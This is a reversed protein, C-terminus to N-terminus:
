GCTWGGDVVLSSGTMFGGGESALLVMPAMIDEVKAFRNFKIKGLVWARFDPDSLGHRTLETEIFTPCLTNVRIKYQALEIAIGKTMGELAFKSASYISRKPGSVQGMQSSVNIISGPKGAAILPRAVAQSCFYAARSNLRITADFIDLTAEVFDVHGGMGANNILIDFAGSNEITAFSSDDNLDLPLAHAHRGAQQLTAVAQQLQESPRALLVVEAGAESLAAAAALGLGRSAGTILARKGNLKLSPTKAISMRLNVTHSARM